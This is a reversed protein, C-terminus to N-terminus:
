RLGHLFQYGILCGFGTKATEPYIIKEKTINIIQGGPTGLIAGEPSAWLACLGPDFGIDGGDRYEIAESWEVAPFPCVKRANWARPNVGELFYTNEETSLFMGGAVSKIMLIKTHFQIFSEAKNFLGFDYPESWWLVNDESIFMRGSFISLHNGTIPASFIRNTDPGTFTGIQWANSVGGEIWGKEYGNTYYTRDGSQAFSMKDPTLGSRIGTLSGDAAVQYLATDKVVFCDGSDCFLSHYAGSQLLTQGKRRTVRGSQDIEINVAVGLDTVGKSFPLRVPDVVTNLGTAASFITSPKM